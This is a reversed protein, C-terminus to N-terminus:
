NPLIMENGETINIDDKKKTKYAVGGGIIVAAVIVIVFIIILTSIANSIDSDSFKLTIKGKGKSKLEFFDIQSDNLKIKKDNIIEGIYLSNIDSKGYIKKEIDDGEFTLEAGSQVSYYLGILYQIEEKEFIFEINKKYPRGEFLTYNGKIETFAIQPNNEYLKFLIENSTYNSLLLYKQKIRNFLQIKGENIINGNETYYGNDSVGIVYDKISTNISPKSVKIYLPIGEYYNLKLIKQEPIKILTPLEIYAFAIEAPNGYDFFGAITFKLSSIQPPKFYYYNYEYNNIITSNDKYITLTPNISIKMKYLSYINEKTKLVFGFEGYELFKTLNNQNLNFSFSFSKLFFKSHFNSNITEQEINETLLITMNKSANEGNFENLGKSKVILYKINSAGSIEFKCYKTECFDSNFNNENLNYTNQLTQTYGGNQTNTEIRYNKNGLNFQFVVYSYTQFQNFIIPKDENIIINSERISIYDNYICSSTTSYPCTIIISIRSIANKNLSTYTLSSALNGEAKVEEYKQTKPNYKIPGEIIIYKFSSIPNNLTIYFTKTKINEVIYNFSYELTKGEFNFNTFGFQQIDSFPIDKNTSMSIRNNFIVTLYRSSYYSNIYYNRCSIFNNLKNNDFLTGNACIANQSFRILLNDNITEFHIRYIQPYNENPTEEFYYTTPYNIEKTPPIPIAGINGKTVTSATLNNLNYTEKIKFLIDSKTNDPIFYFIYYNKDDLKKTNNFIMSQVNSSFINLNLNSPDIYLVIGGEKKKKYESIYNSDTLQFIKDYNQFFFFQKYYDKNLILTTSDVEYIVFYITGVSSQTSLDTNRINLEDISAQLNSIGLNLTCSKENCKQNGFKYTFSEINSYIRLQPYNQNKVLEFYLNHFGNSISYEYIKGYNIKIKPNEPIFSIYKKISAQLNYNLPYSVVFFNGLKYYVTNKDDYIVKTMWNKKNIADNENSFQYITPLASNSNETNDFIDIRIKSESETFKIITDGESNLEIYKNLNMEKIETSSLILYIISTLILTFMKM